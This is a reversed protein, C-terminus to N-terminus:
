AHLTLWDAANRWSSKKTGAELNREQNRAKAEGLLPSYGAFLGQWIFVKRDVNSKNM